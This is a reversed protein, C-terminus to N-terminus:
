LPVSNEVLIESDLLFLSNAQLVVVIVAGIEVVLQEEVRVIKKFQKKYDTM